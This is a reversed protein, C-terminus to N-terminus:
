VQEIDEDVVKVLPYHGGETLVSIICLQPSHSVCWFATSGNLMAQVSQLAPCFSITHPKVFALTSDQGQFPIVVLILVLQSIVQQLPARCLLVPPDQLIVLQHHAPLTGQHGLLGILDQHANFAAHGATRPLHDKGYVGGHDPRVQLVTDLEPSGRVFVSIEQISDLLPGCLHYLAQIFPMEETLFCQTVQTQEAKLFSSESTNQNINIHIKLTPILPVHGIEKSSDTPVPYLSIAMFQLMPLKVGTNSPAEECHPHRLVPIRQGPLNHLTRRQLYELDVQVGVQAAQQLPGAKCPPQVQHDRSTGELGQM